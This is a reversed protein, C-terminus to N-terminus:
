AHSDLDIREWAKVEHLLGARLHQLMFSMAELSTQVTEAHTCITESRNLGIGNVNVRGELRGIFTSNHPRALWEHAGTCDCQNENTCQNGTTRRQM